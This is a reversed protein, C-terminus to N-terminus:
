KANFHRVMKMPYKVYQDLVRELEYFKEKRKDSNDETPAHVNLVIVDSWRGRLKIYSMRDCIYKVRKVASRIGKDVFFGTGLHRNANGNRYLFPDDDATQRGGEVLRLEQAAMPDLNCKALESAATTLLDSRCLRRVNCTGFRMDM